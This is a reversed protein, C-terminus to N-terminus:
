VLVSLGSDEVFINFDDSADPEDITIYCVMVDDSYGMEALEDDILAKLEKWTLMTDEM